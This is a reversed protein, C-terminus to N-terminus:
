KPHTSAFVYAAVDQIQKKTLLGSTGYGPMVGKGKTVRTVVLAYAPKKKDLNPGITSSAKAAKLTHCSICQAKFVVAGAKANGPNTAGSRALAVSVTIM